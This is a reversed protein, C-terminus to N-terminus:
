IRERVKKVTPEVRDRYVPQVRDKIVPEVRDTYVPKVRDNVVPEVRDKHVPEVRDRAKRAQEVVQDTVQKRFEGGRQEAKEIEATVLQKLTEVQAPRTNPDRLNNVRNQLLEIEEHAGALRAAADRHAQRERRGATRRRRRCRRGSTGPRDHHAGSHQRRDRHRHFRQEPVNKNEVGRHNDRILELRTRSYVVSCMNTFGRVFETVSAAILPRNRSTSCPACAARPREPASSGPMRTTSSAPRPCRRPSSWVKNLGRIGAEAAVADCFVKGRTYQAMKMDLGLLKSVFRDLAGRRKRDQDLKVRMEAYGPDLEDGVADMVHEAYGEIVTMAAMLRDVLAKQDENWLVTALEGNQFTRLLERPGLQTLKSLVEGPKVEVAAQQFLEAATAGMHGRLWPVGGFQVAHTTEHLAIWSLFLDRDVGLRERAASLNPGVFLLRPERAPGLLAVDYQGIVRQALYGVALGIEAGTAASAIKGSLGPPGSGEAGSGKDSEEMRAAIISEVEASMGRFSELNVRAWEDRGILEAEPLPDRAKLGTYRSVLEGARRSEARLEDEGGPWAAGQGGAATAIREALSWDVLGRRPADDAM